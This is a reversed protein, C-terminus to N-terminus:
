RRGGVKKEMRALIKGDLLLSLAYRVGFGTMGTPIHALGTKRIGSALDLHIWPVNEGVFRKLFRAALIHDADGEIACQKIDAIESELAKDYDEDMPFPWVREGCSRGTHILLERWEDRNTFVGSYGSGLSYVCAGTLTAFDVILGPRERSALALTDALLMRGEADTHVVEISTGDCAHVVDNPKYAKPGINNTALAMWCEVPFRVRLASLAHLVGLAVASGQMDGHMNYMFKAPKVNTGGTDFCVGKGVLMLGRGNGVARRGPSYRLRLIGADDVPSGQVVALFAGAGKRRLAASDYFDVRWKHRRAIQRAQRVYERPTLKNPPLLSFRRALANGEAEVRTRRFRPSAGVGFVDVVEIAPAREPERKYAPLEAGAAFIAALQAEAIRERQRATFGAIAVGVATAKNKVAVEVLKRALTLLEFEPLDGRIVASAVRSGAANPLDTVFPETDIEKKRLRRRRDLLIQAYPAQQRRGADKGASVVVIWDSLGDM